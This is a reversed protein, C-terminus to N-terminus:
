KWCEMTRRLGDKVVQTNALVNNRGYLLEKRMVSAGVMTGLPNPHPRSYFGDYSKPNCGNKDVRDMKIRDVAEELEVYEDILDLVFDLNKQQIGDELHADLYETIVANEDGTGYRNTKMTRCGSEKIVTM